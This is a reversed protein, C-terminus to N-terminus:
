DVGGAHPAVEGVAVNVAVVSSIEEVFKGSPTVVSGVGPFTMIAETSAYKLFSRVVVIASTSVEIGL